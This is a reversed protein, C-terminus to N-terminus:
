ENGGEINIIRAGIEEAHKKDMGRCTFLFIQKDGLNKLYDIASETRKDDYSMLIDDLFLPVDEAILETVSLRLAFYLQEYTGRSLFEADFMNEDNCLHMRYDDSVRVDAYRGSTFASIIDNVKENLQPTIQSRRETELRKIEDAAIDIAALREDLESIELKIASMETDIDSPLKMESAQYAMKSDLEQIQRTLEIQRNRDEKLRKEIELPSAIEADEALMSIQKIEDYTKDGLLSAVTAELGSLREKLGLGTAYLRSLEAANKTEYKKLLEFLESKTEETEQVKRSILQREEQKKKEIECRINKCEKAYRIGYLLLSIGAAGMVIFTLAATLIGFQILCFIAALLGAAALAAGVGILIGSQAQRKACEDELLNTDINDAVAESKGLKEELSYANQVDEETLSQSLIYERSERIERCKDECEDIKKIREAASKINESELSKKYSIEDAKLREDVQILEAKAAKLRRETEETQLLRDRLEFREKRCEELRQELIDKRGKASRGDKAKIAKHMTELLGLAKDASIDEDGSVKLNTLRKSIEEDKGGMFAGDQSIWVTKEFMDVPMGFLLIGINDSNYENLKEGTLSDYVETKDGAATKGFQRRIEIRRGDVSVILVGEAKGGSWPIARDREKISEGARRRSPFGYLMAKIFLQITSKGAENEGYIVNLGDEAKLSFNEFKGFRIIKLEELRTM